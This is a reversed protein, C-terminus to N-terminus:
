KTQAKFYVKGLGFLISNAVLCYIGPMLISSIFLFGSRHDGFGDNASPFNENMIGWGQKFGLFAASLVLVLHVITQIKSKFYWPFSSKVRLVLVLAPLFGIVFIGFMIPLLIIGM